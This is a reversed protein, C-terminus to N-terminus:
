RCGIGPNKRDGQLSPPHRREALRLHEKEPTREYLHEVTYDSMDTMQMPTVNFLSFAKSPSATSCFVAALWALRADAVPSFQRGCKDTNLMDTLKSLTTANNQLFAEDARCDHADTCPAVVSDFMTQMNKAM